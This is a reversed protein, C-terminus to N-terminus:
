ARYHLVNQIAQEVDAQSPPFPVPVDPGAVRLVPAKLAAFAEEAVVAGVEAGVGGSKPAEQVIVARHTKTVSRVIAERDLPYLSRLDLVEVEAGQRSLKAAVALVEHVMGAWSIVSVDRGERKVDAKGLPILEEGDPVDGAVDYLRKHEFFLVPNDDRIAAKMLGKADRATSPAVVKLGPVHLFWGEPSKQQMPIGPSTAGFPTRVVLPAKLEGNSLFRVQAAEGVLQHYCTVLFESDMIEIVPRMGSMASGISSGVIAGESIPTEIVRQTGFEALLGETVGFIGGNRYGAISVGILIVNPDRTMEERLAQNLAQRYTIHAM